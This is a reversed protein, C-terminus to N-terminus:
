LDYNSTSFTLKKPLIAIELEKLPEFLEGDLHFPLPISSYISINKAKFSEVEKLSLLSGRIAKPINLFRKLKNVEKIISVDLFGDDIKAQPTLRFLGGHFQGNGISISLVNGLFKFDSSKVEIPFASFNFLIKLTSFLYSLEHKFKIQRQKAVVCTDLGIGFNNIFYKDKNLFGVDVVKKYSSNLSNLGDQITRIGIMKAFDNGSGTPIIGLVIDELYIGNVVESVTGDGGVVLIFKTGELQAKRALHTAHKEYETFVTEYVIGLTKIKSEIDKWRLFSEGKDAQPNVIIKIM